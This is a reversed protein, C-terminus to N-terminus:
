YNRLNAVDCQIILPFNNKFHIRITSSLNACKSFQVLHKLDFIGQVIVDPNDNTEYKMGTPAPKVIIEQKVNTNYGKFILQGNVSTIELKESFQHIERCIRQFRTSSLIIVSDFKAPPIQRDNLPIDMLSLYIINNINEEKNYREIGITNPDQKEVFLRLTDSNEM